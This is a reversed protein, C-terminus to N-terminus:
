QNPFWSIAQTHPKGTSLLHDLAQFTRKSEGSGHTIGPSHFETSEGDADKLLTCVSAFPCHAYESPVTTDMWQDQVHDQYTSESLTRVALKYIFLIYSM